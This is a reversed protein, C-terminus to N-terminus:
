APDTSVTHDHLLRQYSFETYIDDGEPDELTVCLRSTLSKKDSNSSMALKNKESESRCGKCDKQQNDVPLRDIEFGRSGNEIPPGEIELEGSPSGVPLQDEELKVTPSRVSLRDVELVGRPSGVQPVDTALGRRHSAVLSQGVELGELEASDIDVPPKYMESGKRFNEVLPEVVELGKIMNRLSDVPLGLGDVNLGKRLSDVPTADVEFGKMFSDVPPEDVHLTGRHLLDDETQANNPQLGVRSVENAHKGFQKLEPNSNEPQQCIDVGDVHDLWPPSSLSQSMIYTGGFYEVSIASTIKVCCKNSCSSM